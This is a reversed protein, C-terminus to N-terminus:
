PLAAEGLAGGLLEPLRSLFVGRPLVTAGAARAAALRRGEVHPGFALVIKGAETLATLLEAGAEGVADLDVILVPCDASRAQDGGALTVPVAGVSRVATDVPVRVFLNPVLVGVRTEAV